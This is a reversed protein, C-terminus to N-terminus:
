GRDGGESMLAQWADAATAMGTRQIAYGTFDLTPSAQIAALQEETVSDMVRVMNGQLLQFKQDVDSLDVQRYYVGEEGALAAWGPGPAYTVYDALNGSAEMRFFLWCDDSGAKVTLHPDKDLITGPILRYNTGTTETLSLEVNGITFTNIVPQSSTAIFAITVGVGVALVLATLLLVTIKTRNNV